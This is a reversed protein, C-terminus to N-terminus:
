TETEGARFKRSVLKLGAYGLLLVTGGLALWPFLWGTRVFFTMGRSKGIRSTGTGTTMPPLSKHVNGHPDIIQSVGSSAACALWRATEAARLQFLAAHQLHETASWSRADFSPVAFFEAGHQVLKRPVDSFDCDFCIPTGFAGLPTQIPRFSQGPVGDDFFHVPRAKYYEGLVRDKDLTLATNHWNRDGPGITTKAGVVLIAEMDACLKHLLALDDPKKRVDYPLAYEPWVILDPSEARATKTLEV